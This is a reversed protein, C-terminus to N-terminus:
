DPLEVTQSKIRPLLEMYIESRNRESRHYSVGQKEFASSVWDKAFADGVVESAHCSKIIAAFEVASAEPNGHRGEVLDVVVRQSRDDFHAAALTFEDAGGANADTFFHYQIGQQYPRSRVGKVM